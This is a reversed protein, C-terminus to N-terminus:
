KIPFLSFKFEPKVMNLVSSSETNCGINKEIYAMAFNFRAVEREPSETKVSMLQLFSKRSFPVKECDKLAKLAAESSLNVYQVAASLVNVSVSTKNTLIDMTNLIDAM